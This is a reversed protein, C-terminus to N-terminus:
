QQLASRIFADVPHDGVPIAPRTLARFSWHNSAPVAAALPETEAAAVPAVVILIAVIGVIGAWLCFVRRPRDRQFWTLLRIM